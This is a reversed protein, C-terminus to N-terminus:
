VPYGHDALPLGRRQALDQHGPKTLQCIRDAWEPPVSAQAGSTGCTDVRLKGPKRGILRYILTRMLSSEVAMIAEVQASSIRPNVLEGEIVEDAHVSEIGLYSCIQDLFFGPTEKLQEYLLICVNEAGFTAEWDIIFDAYNLHSLEAKEGTNWCQDLWQEMTLTKLNTLWHNQLTNHKKVRQLYLSEIFDLPRRLTILLRCDGCVAKLNALKAARRKPSGHTGDEFSMLVTRGKSMLPRVVEDFRRRNLEVDCKFVGKRLMDHVLAGVRSDPFSNGPLIKGLYEIQKHEPFFRSQLLSTATKPLGVHFHLIDDCVSVPNTEDNARYQLM